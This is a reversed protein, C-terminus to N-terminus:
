TVEWVEAPGELFSGFGATARIRLLGGKMRVQVVKEFGAATTTSDLYCQAAAVAGTGCSNTERNVGREFTRASVQDYGTRGVITCNARPTTLAGWAALPAKDVEPVLAVAHPEGCVTYLRFRPTGAAQAAFYDGRSLVQGMRVSYLGDATLEVELVTGDALLIRRELGLRDLLCGVARAGNGCMISESGDSEFVHMRVAGGPVPSLGLVSDFSWGGVRALLHAYTAEVDHRVGFLILFHNRCADAWFLRVRGAPQAPRLSDVRAAPEPLIEDSARPTYRSTLTGSFFAAIDNPM